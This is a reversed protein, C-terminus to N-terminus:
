LPFILEASPNPLFSHNRKPLASLVAPINLPVQRPAELYLWFFLAVTFYRKDRGGEGIRGRHRVPVHSFLHSGKQLSTHPSSIYKCLGRRDCALGLVGQLFSAQSHSHPRALPLGPLPLSPRCSPPCSLSIPQPLCGFPFLHLCAPPHM